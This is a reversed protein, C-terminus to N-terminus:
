RDAVTHKDSEHNVECNHKATAEDLQGKLVALQQKLVGIEVTQRGITLLLDDTTVNM